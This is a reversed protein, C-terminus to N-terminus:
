KVGHMWGRMVPVLFFLVVGAGIAIFRVNNFVGAYLSISQASSLTEAHGRM